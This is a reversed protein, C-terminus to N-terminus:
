ANERRRQCYDKHTIRKRIQGVEFNPRGNNDARGMNRLIELPNLSLSRDLYGRFKPERVIDPSEINTRCAGRKEWGIIM